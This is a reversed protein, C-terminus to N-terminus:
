CQWNLKKLYAAKPAFCSYNLNDLIHSKRCVFLIYIYIDAVNVPKSKQRMEVILLM